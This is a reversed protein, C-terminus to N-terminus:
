LLSGVAMCRVFATMEVPATACHLFGRMEGQDTTPEQKGMWM